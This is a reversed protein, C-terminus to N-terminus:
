NVAAIKQEDDRHKGRIANGVFTILDRCTTIKPILFESSPILFESRIAIVDCWRCNPFNTIEGKQSSPEGSADGNIHVILTHLAPDARRYM